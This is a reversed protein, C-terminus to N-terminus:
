EPIIGSRDRIILKREEPSVFCFEIVMADSPILNEINESWEVAIINKRKKLIEEFNLDSLDTEGVRFADIHYFYRGNDADYKKLILFTPSTIRDKVGLGGALGKLFTTKGSGLDGKLAFFVREKKELAKRGIMHGCKKTERASRTVVRRKM